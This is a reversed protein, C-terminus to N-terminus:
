QTVGSLFLLLKGGVVERLKFQKENKGWYVAFSEMMNDSALHYCERAGSLDVKKSAAFVLLTVKFSDHANDSHVYVM